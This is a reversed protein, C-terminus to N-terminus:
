KLENAGKSASEKKKGEGKGDRGEGEMGCRQLTMKLYMQLKIEKESEVGNGQEKLNNM